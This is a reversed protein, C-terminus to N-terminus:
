DKLKICQMTPSSNENSSSFILVCKMKPETITTFEYIRPNFGATDIKYEADKHVEKMGLSSVTSWMGANLSLAALITLLLYKM